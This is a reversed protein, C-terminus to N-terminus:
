FDYLKVVRGEIFYVASRKTKKIIGYTHATSLNLNMIPFFGCLTDADARLIGRRRWVRTGTAALEDQYKALRGLMVQVHATMHPYELMRAAMPSKYRGGRETLLKVAKLSRLAKETTKASLGVSLALKKATWAGTDNSLALFCKYNDRSGAIVELQAPSIYYKEGALSTKMAKHMPSLMSPETNAALLPELIERFNEEGTLTKLWATVLENAAPSKPVMRLGFLLGRLRGFGPLNEGQELSLYKRYSIKLVPAGGNDHYFRYATPFGAEHRLRTLTVSFVTAM